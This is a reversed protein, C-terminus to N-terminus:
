MPGSSHEDLVCMEGAHQVWKSVNKVDMCGDGYVAKTRKHTKIPECGELTLSEIVLRQKKHFDTSATM